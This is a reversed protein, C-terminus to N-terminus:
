DAVGAAKKYGGTSYVIGGALSAAVQIAFFGLSLTVAQGAPIGHLGLLYVFGGERVGIGNFSLPLMTLLSILPFAAFYFIAPVQIAMARGLLVCILICLGQIFLSFIIGAALTAPHRWFVLMTRVANGTMTDMRNRFLRGIVPMLVLVCIVAVGAWILLDTLSAPLIAPCSVVAACGLLLLSALGFLRDAVVSYSALIKKRRDKGRSMFFIKIVDGGISTPLFLNFFMGCFYYNVYTLWNGTFGLVRILIYWRTSSLVQSTLYMIFLVPWLPGPIAFFARVMQERDAHMLFWGLLILSISIKLAAKLFPSGGKISM